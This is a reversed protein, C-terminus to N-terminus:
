FAKDTRRPYTHEAFFGCEVFHNREYFRKAGTNSAAVRLYIYGKPYLGSMRKVCSQLITRGYGCNQYQPAVVVDRIFQGESICAGVLQNQLWFSQVGAASEYGTLARLFTDPNNRYQDVEWGNDQNLSYYAGEFLDIFSELMDPMFEREWLESQEDLSIQWGCDYRLQYGEMDSAFGLSRIFEIIGRNRGYVNCCLERCEDAKLYPKISNEIVKLLLEIRHTQTFVAYTIACDDDEALCFVGQNDGSEEYYVVTVRQEDFANRVFDVAGTSILSILGLIKNNKEKEM